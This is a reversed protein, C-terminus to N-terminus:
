AAGVAPLVEVVDSFGWCDSQALRTATRVAEREATQFWIGVCLVGLKSFHLPDRHM